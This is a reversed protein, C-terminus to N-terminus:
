VLRDNSEGAQAKAITEAAPINVNQQPQTVAVLGNGSQSTLPWCQPMLPFSLITSGNGVSASGAPIVAGSIGFTFTANATLPTPTTSDTATFQVAAPTSPKTPTGSIVGTSANLSLGVPLAGSTITWTIPTMGGTEALTQSYAVGVTASPLNTTTITMAM